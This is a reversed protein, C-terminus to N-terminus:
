SPTTLVCTPYVIPIDHIVADRTHLMRIGGHFKPLLIEQGNERMFQSPKRTIIWKSQSDTPNLARPVYKKAENGNGPRPLFMRPVEVLEFQIRVNHCPLQM